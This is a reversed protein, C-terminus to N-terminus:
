VVELEQGVKTAGYPLEGDVALAAAVEDAILQPKKDVNLKTRDLKYATFKVDGDKDRNWVRVKAGFKTIDMEEGTNQAETVDETYALKHLTISTSGEAGVLNSFPLATVLLGAVVALKGLRKKTNKSM